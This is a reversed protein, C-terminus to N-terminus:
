GQELEDKAGKGQHVEKPVCGITDSEEEFAEWPERSSLSTLGYEKAWHPGVWRIGRDASVSHM